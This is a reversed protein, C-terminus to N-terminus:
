VSDVASAYRGLKPKV